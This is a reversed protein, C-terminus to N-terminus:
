AVMMNHSWTASASWTATVLSAAKWAGSKVTFVFPGSSVSRVNIDGRNVERLNLLLADNIALGLSRLAVMAAVGAAWASSPLYRGAHTAACTRGALRLYFRPRHM